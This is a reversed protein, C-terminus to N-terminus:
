NTIINKIFGVVLKNDRFYANHVTNQSLGLHYRITLKLMKSKKNSANYKLSFNCCQLALLIYEFTTQHRKYRFYDYYILAMNNLVDSLLSHIQSNQMMKPHYILRLANLYSKYALKLNSTIQYKKASEILDIVKEIKANIPLLADLETYELSLSDFISAKLSLLVNKNLNFDSYASNHHIPDKQRSKAAKKIKKKKPNVKQRKKKPM